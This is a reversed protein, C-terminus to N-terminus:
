CPIFKLVALCINMFYYQVIYLLDKMSVVYVAIRIEFLHSATSYEISIFPLISDQACLAYIECLIARYRELKYVKFDGKM